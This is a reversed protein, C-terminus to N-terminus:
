GSGCRIALHLAAAGTDVNGDAFKQKDKSIEALFPHIAAPDGLCQILQSHYFAFFLFFAIGNRLASLLRVQYLPEVIYYIMLSSLM